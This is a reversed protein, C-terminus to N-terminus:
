PIRGLQIDIWADVIARAWNLCGYCLAEGWEAGAGGGACVKCKM